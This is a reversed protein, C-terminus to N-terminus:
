STKAPVRIKYHVLPLENSGFELFGLFSNHRRLRDYDTKVRASNESLVIRVETNQVDERSRRGSGETEIRAVIDIEAKDWTTIELTGKYTDVFLRGNNSFPGSKHVERSEQSIVATTLVFCLVLFAQLRHRM